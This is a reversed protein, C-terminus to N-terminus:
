AQEWSAVIDAAIAAAAREREEDYGLFPQDTHLAGATRAIVSNEPLKRLLAALAPNYPAPTRMATAIPVLVAVDQGGRRWVQPQHSRQVEDALRSLEPLATIDLAQREVAMM